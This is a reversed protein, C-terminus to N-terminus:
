TCLVKAKSIIKGKLDHIVVGLPQRVRLGHNLPWMMKSDILEGRRIQEIRGVKKGMFDLHQLENLVPQLCAQFVHEPLKTTNQLQYLAKILNETASLQKKQSLEVVDTLLEGVSRYNDHQERCRVPMALFGTGDIEIFLTDDLHEQLRSALVLLFQSHHQDQSFLTRLRHSDSRM